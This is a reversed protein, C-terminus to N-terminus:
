LEDAVFLHLISSKVESVDKCKILITTLKFTCHTFCALPQIQKETTQKKIYNQYTKNPMINRNFVIFM